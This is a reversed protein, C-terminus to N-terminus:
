RPRISPETIGVWSCGTGLMDALMMLYTRISVIVARHIPSTELTWQDLQDPLGYHGVLHVQTASGFGALELDADLYPFCPCSEDTQWTHPAVVADGRQRATGLTVIPPGDITPPPVRLGLSQWMERHENWASRVLVGLTPESLHTFQEVVEGVPRDITVFDHVIM